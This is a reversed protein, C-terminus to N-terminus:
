ECKARTAQICNGTLCCIIADYCLTHNANWFVSYMRDDSHLSAETLVAGSPVAPLKCVRTFICM